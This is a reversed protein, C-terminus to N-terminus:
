TDEGGIHIVSPDLPPQQLNLAPACLGGLLVCRWGEVQLECSLLSSRSACEGLDAGQSREISPASGPEFGLRFRQHRAAPVLGESCSVNSRRVMPPDPGSDFDSTGLSELWVRPVRCMQVACWRLTRARTSIAPVSRTCGFGRFWVCKFPAGDPELGSIGFSPQELRFRQYRGAPVLGKSFGVCKITTM